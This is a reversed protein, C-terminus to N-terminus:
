EKGTKNVDMLSLYKKIVLSSNKNLNTNAYDIQHQKIGKNLTPLKQDLEVVIGLENERIQESYDGIDPTILVQLGRSLYEACKVPSAVKNTISNERLLLGFDCIDLYDVVENHAVFRQFVRSPFDAIMNEIIGNEKALFILKIADNQKLMSRLIRGIKDFSQWEAISGSYILLLDKEGIGFEKKLELNRHIDIDKSFDISLTCPIVVFEDGKYAYEDAWYNLLKQSVAIRHDSLLVANRELEVIDNSIGTGSYVNYEKQEAAIAGRGDYVITCKKSLTQLALNCAVVSRAIVISGAPISLLSFWAANRKWFKLKPFAPLVISSSLLSKIQKRQKFYGRISIFAILNAEVKQKRYLKIVDIVQSQFIGGPADNFTLYFIKRDTSITSM